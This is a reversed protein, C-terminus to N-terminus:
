GLVEVLQKDRIRLVRDCQAIVHDDHSVIVIAHEERLSQLTALFTRTSTADLSATPEDLM